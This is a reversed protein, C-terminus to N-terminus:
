KAGPNYFEMQRSQQAEAYEGGTASQMFTTASAMGALAARGASTSAVAREYAARLAPYYRAKQIKMLVVDHITFHGEADICVDSEIASSLDSPTVYSFGISKMYGLRQSKTNVWRLEYNTDKIKAKLPDGAMFPKAEIPISLDYISDADLQSYDTIPVKKKPLAQTARGNFSDNMITEQHRAILDESIAKIQDATLPHGRMEEPVEEIPIIPKVKIGERSPAIDAGVDHFKDDINSM